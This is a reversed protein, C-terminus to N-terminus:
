APVGAFAQRQPAAMAAPDYELYAHSRTNASSWKEEDGKPIFGKPGVWPAKPALAVLETTASRRFNLMAQPDKADRILSKHVRRGDEYHEDGWVPCIPINQGPWKDEKLIEVGNIVYRTVEFYDADREDTIQIGSAQIFAEALGDEDKNPVEIGQGEYFAAALGPLQDWRVTQVDTQGTEPNMVSFRIIKRQKTERKFYEAIEEWQSNQNSAIKPNFL